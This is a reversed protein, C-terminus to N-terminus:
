KSKVVCNRGSSKAEYLAQDAKKILEQFSSLRGTDTALGISITIKLELIEMSKEEVVQRITEAIEMANNEPMGPFLLVFEEGGYRAIIDDKRCLVRIIHAIGKLVEDGRDHGYTDNVNKFHDIDIFLLSIPTRNKKAEDFKQKIINDFYHRNFLDTLRDLNAQRSLRKRSKLMKEHYLKLEHVIGRERIKEALLKYQAVLNQTENGDFQLQTENQIWDIGKGKDFIITFNGINIEDGHKLVVTKIREGNVFTGNTSNLDEIVFNKNHFYIRAHKRSVEKGNLVFDCDDARGIIYEKRDLQLNKLLIQEEVLVLAPKNTSM